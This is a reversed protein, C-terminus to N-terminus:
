YELSNDKRQLKGALLGIVAIVVTMIVALASGYGISMNNFVVKVLYTTVIETSNYPGGNTMVYFLDFAQFGTLVCLMVGTDVLGRIMPMKIKTFITWETAGDLYASEYVDKPIRQIGSYFITMYFGAYVWGSVLCIALLATNPNGLWVNTWSELGVATLISNLLGFDSNYVFRWIYSVVIMPLMVPTFFAIRFLSSGKRGMTILGALCLGVLVELFVTAIIYILIHSYSSWYIRDQFARAYNDLGVFNMAGFGNWDYFSFAFTMVIPVLITFAFLLVAPAVFLYASRSKPSM